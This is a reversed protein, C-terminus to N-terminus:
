SIKKENHSYSDNLNELNKQIVHSSRFLPGIYKFIFSFIFQSIKLGFLKIIIFLFIIIIFEVLYKIQKMLKQRLLNLLNKRM